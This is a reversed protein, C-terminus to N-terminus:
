WFKLSSKKHAGHWQKANGGGLHLWWLPVWLDAMYTGVNLMVNWWFISDLCMFEHGCGSHKSEVLKLFYRSRVTTNELVLINMFYHAVHLLALFEQWWRSCLIWFLARLFFCFFVVPCRSAIESNFKKRRFAALDQLDRHWDRLLIKKTLCPYPIRLQHRTGRIELAHIYAHIYAHM